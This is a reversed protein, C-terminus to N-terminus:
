DDFAPIIPPHPGVLDLQFSPVPNEPDTRLFQSFILGDGPWERTATLRARVWVEQGGAVVQSIDRPMVDGGGRDAELAVITTWAEGDPSVDVAAKAGPDYPFPDGTTWVHLGAKLTADQIVVPVPFRLVVRGEEGATTPRIFSMAGAQQETYLEAGELAVLKERWEDGPLNVAFSRRAPMRWAVEAPRALRNGAADRPRTETGVLELVYRGEEATSAAMASLKWSRGSGSVIASGLGIPRGDRTLRFCDRTLGVVDEDLSLSVWDLPTTRGSSVNAFRAAPGERDLGASSAMVPPAIAPAAQDGGRIMAAIMVLLSLTSGATIAVLGRHRRIWWALQPRPSQRLPRPMEGAVVRRIDAALEAASPYRDDPWKALCRDAIM